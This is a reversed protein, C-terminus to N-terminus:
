CFIGYRKMNNRWIQLDVVDWCDSPNTTAGAPSGDNNNNCGYFSNLIETVTLGAYQNKLHHILATQRVLDHGTPVKVNGNEGGKSSLLSYSDLATQCDKTSTLSYFYKGDNFEHDKTVHSLFGVHLLKNMITSATSRDTITSLLDSKNNESSNYNVIATVIDTGVFCKEYTRLNYRRDQIDLLPQIQKMYEALKMGELQESSAMDDNSDDDGDSPQASSLRRRSAAAQLLRLNRTSPAMTTAKSDEGGDDEENVVLPLDFIAKLTLLTMYDNSGEEISSAMELLDDLSSQLEENTPFRYLHTGDHFKTENTHSISILLGVNRLLDGKMVAKKRHSALGLGVLTEVIDDGYFCDKYTKTYRTISSKVVVSSILITYIDALSQAQEIISQNNSKEDQWYYSNTGSSSTVSGTEGMGGGDNDEELSDLSAVDIAVITSRRRSSNKGDKQNEKKRQSSSSDLITDFCRRLIWAAQDYDPPSEETVVEMAEETASELLEGVATKLVQPQMCAHKAADMYLEYCGRKDGQNYMPAGENITRILLEELTELKSSGGDDNGVGSM